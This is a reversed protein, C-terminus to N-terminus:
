LKCQSKERTGFAQEAPVTAVIKLYDWPAVSEEPAKAKVVYVPKMLRGDARLTAKPHVADSIPTEKRAKAVVLGETAGTAAVAKFYHLAASYMAAQVETPPRGNHMKAFRASFRRSAEDQDWYFGSAHILGQATALGMAHIDTPFVTFAALKQKNTLGFEGAQRVATTMDKGANALAVIEAGSSQAQLLFSAFDATNLPHRVAGLVKGGGSTVTDTLDRQLQHGFTYDAAIVFWKQNGQKVMAGGTVATASYTNINWASGFPSCDKGTLDAGVATFAFIRSREKALQQVALAVASAPVGFIAQVGDDFWKRAILGGVDPKNQHDASVVQISRGLVTGSVDEAALKVAVVTGQGGLDSYPGSLDELVGVRLPEAAFAATALSLTFFSVALILRM